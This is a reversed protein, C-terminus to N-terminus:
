GGQAIRTQTEEAQGFAAADDVDLWYRAGVDYTTALGRGALVRVGASLSGDGGQAVDERVAEALARPAVFIGTDFADYTEILKGIQLIAGDPATAVRTVDDLDVLPNNLRRDVALALGPRGESFAILDSVISPDFLHDAMLLVSPDDMYSEAAALSLGNARRWDPNHVCKVPLRKRAGLTQLFATLPAAEYGTVVVFSDVGGSVAADIVREILPVELLSALPKSPAISRLRTGQGAALIVAKM